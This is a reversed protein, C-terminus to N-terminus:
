LQPETGHTVVAKIIIIITTAVMNLAGTQRGNPGVSRRRLTAETTRRMQLQLFLLAKGLNCLALELIQAGSRLAARVMYSRTDHEM